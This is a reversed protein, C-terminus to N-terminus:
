RIETGIPVKSTPTDLIEIQELGIELCFCQQVADLAIVVKCRHHFEAVVGKVGDFVGGRVRVETGAAVFPHPLLSYGKAIGERIRWIQDASVPHAGDGGLLRIVGPVSIVSLRESPSFRVFLYGTFLPRDIMVSRDTWKSLKRYLPLYHKVSRVTLHNAVRKEHNAVVHLVDWPLEDM